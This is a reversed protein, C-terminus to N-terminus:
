RIEFLATRVERSFYNSGLPGIGERAPNTGTNRLFGIAVQEM